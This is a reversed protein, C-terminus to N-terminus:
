NKEKEKLFHRIVIMGQVISSVALNQQCNRQIKSDFFALGTSNVDGLFYYFYTLFVLLFIQIKSPFFLRVWYNM